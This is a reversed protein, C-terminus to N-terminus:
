SEYVKRALRDDEMEDVHGFWGLITQDIRESVNANKRYRPSSEGIRVEDIRRVGCVNKLCNTEVVEVGKREHM